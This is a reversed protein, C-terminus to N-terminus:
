WNEFTWERRKAHWTLLAFRWPGPSFKLQTNEKNEMAKRDATAQNM